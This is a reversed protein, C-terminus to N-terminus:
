RCSTPNHLSASSQLSANQTPIDLLKMINGVQFGDMRFPNEVYNEGSLDQVVDMLVFLYWKELM